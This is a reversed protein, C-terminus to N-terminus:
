FATKPNPWGMTPQKGCMMVTIWTGRHWSTINCFMATWHEKTESLAISKPIRRATAQGGEQYSCCEIRRTRVISRHILIHIYTVHAHLHTYLMQPIICGPFVLPSQSFGIGTGTGAGFIKLSQSWAYLHFYVRIITLSEAWVVCYVCQMEPIFVLWDTLATCHFLRQKNQSGYLCV